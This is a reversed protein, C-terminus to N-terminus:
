DRRQLARTLLYISCLVVGYGGFSMSFMGSVARSMARAAERGLIAGMQGSAASGISHIETTITFVALVVFALPAANLWRSWRQRLFPVGFPALLCLVALLSLLGHDNTMMTNPDLGIADWGNVRRSTYANGMELNPLFFFCILMLVEAVITGIGFRSRLGGRVSEGQQLIGSFTKQAQEKAIQTESVAYVGEPTGTQDFLVDVSMGARPPVESKWMGELLFTYQTGDVTLLGPGINTDRLIRGRKTM